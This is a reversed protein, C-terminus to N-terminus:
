AERWHFYVRPSHRFELTGKVGDARRVVQVYPALFGVVEFDRMLADTDWTEGEPSVVGENILIQRVLRYGETIDDM